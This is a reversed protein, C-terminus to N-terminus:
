LLLLMLRRGVVSLQCSVVAGVFCVDESCRVVLSSLPSSLTASRPDLFTLFSVAFFCPPPFLRAVSYVVHRRCRGRCRGFVSTGEIGRDRRSVQHVSESERKRGGGRERERDRERKRECWVRERTARNRQIGGPPLVPARSALGVVMRRSIPRRIVPFSPRALCPWRRKRYRDSRAFRYAFGPQLAVCCAAAGLRDDM